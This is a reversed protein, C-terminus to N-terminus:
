GVSIWDASQLVSAQFLAQSFAKGALVRVFLRAHHGTNAKVFYITRTERRKPGLDRDHSKLMPFQEILPIETDGECKIYEFQNARSTLFIGGVVQKGSALKKALEHEMAERKQHHLPLAFVMKPQELSAQAM